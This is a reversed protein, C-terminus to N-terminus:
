QIVLLPQPELVLLLLLALLLLVPVLLRPQAVAGELARRPARLPAQQTAHRQPTLTPKFSLCRISPVLHWQPM